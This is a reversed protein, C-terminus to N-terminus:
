VSENGVKHPPSAKADRRRVYQNVVFLITFAAATVGVFVLFARTEQSKEILIDLMAYIFWANMLVKWTRDDRDTKLFSKLLMLLIFIGMLSRLVNRAFLAGGTQPYSLDSMGSYVMFTGMVGM